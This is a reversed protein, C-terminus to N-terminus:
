NGFSNFVKLFPNLPKQLCDIGNRLREIQLSFKGVDTRQQRLNIKHRHDVRSIYTPICLRRNIEKWAPHGNYAKYLACLRAVSRRNKLSDWGATKKDRFTFKAARHQIRELHKCHMNKHPDWCITGYEMIPLVLSLYAIERANATSKKLIRMVFHLSRWAKGVVFDVHKKWSLKSDFHIGLYKCSSVRPIIDNNLRYHTESYNHGRGFTISKSKSSNIPMGNNEAWYYLADLDKQLIEEDRKSNISRYIIYDDAFLRDNSTLQAPLDNIFALFLLPGIVSGQPIGSTVSAGSSLEQGIRVKLKRDRLFESIWAVVRPDIGSNMLKQVLRDHPLVDFTKAFDIVVADVRGGADIEDALDQFLTVVQSECSYGSRFGHQGDYLWKKIEWEKKIYSGFLHEMLKCVVSTLSVPRYNCLKTKDGSKFIPVVFALKWDEPVKSNNLSM